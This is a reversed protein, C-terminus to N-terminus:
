NRRNRIFEELSESYNDLLEKRLENLEMYKKLVLIEFKEREIPSKDLIVIGNRVVQNQFITTSEELDILDVERNVKSSIEQSKIFISYKDIKKDSLFAIDIDSEKNIKGTAYSGFIYITKCKFEKLCEIINELIIKEM